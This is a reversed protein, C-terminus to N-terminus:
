LYVGIAASAIKPIDSTATTKNPHKANTTNSALNLTLTRGM